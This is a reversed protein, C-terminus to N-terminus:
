GAVLIPECAEGAQQREFMIRYATELDRTFRQGDFLPSNTRLRQLKARVAALTEPQSALEIARAEYDQPTHTILEPLGVATLLSAAVRGAFAQGALTLVPLGAWLADSATTHANYPLTDIFLDAARHRALHDDLPMRQAFVLRAGGVGRKEAEKVLNEAAAENDKFLWLVSGPVAKLIRMWCDFTDPLIKYNNNFCCFVFGSDPLGLEARTFQRDSIPRRSDNVQYSYPMWVAKETFFGQHEPPIVVEDAIVYDMYDAGTTGPYGLYSVQVPACRNAFIGMRGDRTFGKLDVAIDIGLGRAMAAIEQDTRGDVEHFHDVSQEIRRRIGDMVQPGLSFAHIEFQEKAHSEFLEAMLYTTAHTFYDASFYGVRIRGPRRAPFSHQAAKDLRHLKLYARALQLHLLPDDVIALFPFPSSRQLAGKSRLEELYSDFGTWDCIHMRVPQAVAPDAHCHALSDIAATFRKLDIESAAKHFHAAELAPDIELAKQYNAIADDHRGMGALARGGIVYASAQQPNISLANEVQAIAQEHLHLDLLCGAHDLVVQANGPQLEAARRLLPEAELLLGQAALARAKTLCAEAYQPHIALARDAAAIAADLQATEILACALNNLAKLNEPAAALVHEFAAIAEESRKLELLAIGQNVRLEPHDHGAEILQSASSLAEEHFGAKILIGVRNMQAAPMEPQLDLAQNIRELAEQPKGGGALALALNVHAGADQPLLRVAQGILRQADAFAGSGLAVVGLMHLAGPHHPSRALIQQYLNAAGQLQGSRHLTLAQQFAQDIQFAASATPQHPRFFPPSTMHFTAM